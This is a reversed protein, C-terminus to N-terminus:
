KSSSSRCPRASSRTSARCTPISRSRPPSPRCSRRSAGRTPIARAGARLGRLRGRHRPRPDGAPQVRDGHRRPVDTGHALSGRRAAARNERSRGLAQAPHLEDGRQAQQRRRHLRPGPAVFMHDIAPDKRSGSSSNRAPKRPASCRRRTPCCSRASSTARTRPRCSARRCAGSSCRRSARDRRPLRARCSATRQARPRRGVLFRRRSSRSAAHQFAPLPAVRPRRAQAAARVAGADAHARRLGLDRGRDRGDGRVAQLARGRHRRPFRGSHVRRVARARDRARRRLSRADSRDLGRKASM